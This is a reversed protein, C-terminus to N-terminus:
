IIDRPLAESARGPLERPKITDSGNEKEKRQKRSLKDVHNNVWAGKTAQKSHGKQHKTKIIIKNAQVYRHVGHQYAQFKKNQSKKAGHTLNQVVVMNDSVILVGTVQIGEKKHFECADIIAKYAIEMEAENNDTATLPLQKSEKIRMSAVYYAGGACKTEGNFSADTYITLWM